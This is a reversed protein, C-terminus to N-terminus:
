IYRSSVARARLLVRGSIPGSQTAQTTGKKYCKGRGCLPSPGRGNLLHAPRNLAEGGCLPRDLPHAGATSCAHQVTGPRVGLFRGMLPHYLTKTCCMM